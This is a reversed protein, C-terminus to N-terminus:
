KLLDELECSLLTSKDLVIQEAQNLKDATMRILKTTITDGLIVHGTKEFYDETKQYFLAAYQRLIKQTKASLKSIDNALKVLDGAMNIITPSMNLLLYGDSFNIWYESLKYIVEIKKGEETGYGYIFSFHDTKFDRRIEIDKLKAVTNIEYNEKLRLYNELWNNLWNGIFTQNVFLPSLDNKLNTNNVKNMKLTLKDFLERLNKIDINKANLYDLDPIAKKTMYWLLDYIDRGKEEYLVGDVGGRQGRLLIAAIKSAMLSSMNYTKIVFSLQNRNIPIREITTKAATFHNLDIKVIVQKSHINIGVLNGINFCLRLGRDTTIKITLLEADLGYTNKFYETIEKKLENLFSKDIKHAIEFDLDVSMRDLEHCVRLASGGYMIWNSYEPHHFIFNLVYFQLEEKLVNRLTEADTIGRAMISDIKEKLMLIIQNNTPM